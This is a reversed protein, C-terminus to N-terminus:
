ANPKVESLVEFCETRLLKVEEPVAALAEGYEPSDLLREFAECSEYRAVSLVDTGEIARFGDSSNLGGLARAVEEIRTAAGWFGPQAPEPVDRQAKVLFDGGEDSLAANWNEWQPVVQENVYLGPPRGRGYNGDPGERFRQYAERSEWFRLVTHRLGDGLYKAVIARAFGEHPAMLGHIYALRDLAEQRRGPTFVLIENVLFM